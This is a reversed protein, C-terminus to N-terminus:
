PTRPFSLVFAVMLRKPMPLCSPSSRTNLFSCDGREEKPFSGVFSFILFIPLFHFLFNFTGTEDAM